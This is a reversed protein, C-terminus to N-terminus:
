GWIIGSLRLLHVAHEPIPPRSAGSDTTAKSQPREEQAVAFLLTNIITMPVVLLHFEYVSGRKASLIIDAKDGIISGLTDTLLVVPCQNEVAYDLVCQLSPNVDFFGIAFLLDRSTMLILPELM